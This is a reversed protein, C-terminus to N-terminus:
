DSKQAPQLACIGYDIITFHNLVNKQISDISVRGFIAVVAEEGLVLSGERGQWGKKEQICDLFGMIIIMMKGNIV